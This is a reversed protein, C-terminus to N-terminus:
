VTLKRGSTSVGWPPPSISSCKPAASGRSACAWRVPVQDTFTCNVSFVLTGDQVGLCGDVILDSNYRQGVYFREETLLAADASHIETRHALVVTLRDEVARKFWYFRHEM